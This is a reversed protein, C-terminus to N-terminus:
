PINSVLKNAGAQWLHTQLNAAVNPALDDNLFNGFRETKVASIEWNHSRM